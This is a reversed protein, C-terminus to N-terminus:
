RIQANETSFADLDYRVGKALGIEILAQVKGELLAVKDELLTLLLINRAPQGALVVAIDGGVIYRDAVDDYGKCGRDGIRDIQSIEADEIGACPIGDIPAPHLAIPNEKGVYAPVDGIQGGQENIILDHGVSRREDQFLIAAQAHQQKRRIFGYGRLKGGSGFTDLM